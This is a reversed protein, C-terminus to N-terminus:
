LVQLNLSYTLIDMVVILQVVELPSLLLMLTIDVEAAQAEVVVPPTIVVLDEAVEELLEEVVPVEAAAMVVKIKDKIVPLYPSVEVLPLGTALM